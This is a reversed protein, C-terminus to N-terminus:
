HIDLWHDAHPAHLDMNLFLEQEWDGNWQVPINKFQNRNVAFYRMWSDMTYEHPVTVRYAPKNMDFWDEHEYVFDPKRYSQRVNLLYNIRDFCQIERKDADTWSQFRIAGSRIYDFGM